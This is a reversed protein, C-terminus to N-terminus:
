EREILGAMVRVPLKGPIGNGLDHAAAHESAQANSSGCSLDACARRTPAAPCTKDGPEGIRHRQQSYSLPEVRISGHARAYAEERLWSRGRPNQMRELFESASQYAPLDRKM